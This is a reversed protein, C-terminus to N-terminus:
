RVVMNWRNKLPKGDPYVRPLKGRGMIVANLPKETTLKKFYQMDEALHFLLKGDKGIAKNNDICAILKIM